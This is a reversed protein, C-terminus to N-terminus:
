VVSKRDTAAFLLWVLVFPIQVGALPFSYFILASVTDAFPKVAGDIRSDIGDNALVPLCTLLLM